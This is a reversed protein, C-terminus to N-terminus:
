VCDTWIHSEGGGCVRYSNCYVGVVDLPQGTHKVYINNLRSRTDMIEKAHIAIDAAQGM